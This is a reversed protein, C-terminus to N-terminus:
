TLVSNVLKLITVFVTDSVDMRYFSPWVRPRFIFLTGGYFIVDYNQLLLMFYISVFDSKNFEETLYYAVRLVFFIVIIM